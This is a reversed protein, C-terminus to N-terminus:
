ERNKKMRKPGYWLWFGTVTFLFLGTGMITTYAVKIVGNTGAIEDLISADHVREIFDSKREGYSLVKGSVGDLQVENFTNKFTFKLIGKEKRIDIRDLEPNIGQISDRVANLAIDHLREIPLWEEFNSSTGQQTEPLLYGNSHKKWGLLVATIAVIFFFSFLLIGTVRHIKRFIRLWKAQRKRREKESM